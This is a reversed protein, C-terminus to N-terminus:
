AAAGDGRHIADHAGEKQKNEQWGERQEARGVCHEHKDLVQLSCRECGKLALRLTLSPHWLIRRTCYSYTPAVTLTALVTNPGRNIFGHTVLLRSDTHLSTFDSDAGGSTAAWPWNQANQGGAALKSLSVIIGDALTM